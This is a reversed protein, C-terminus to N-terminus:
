TAPSSNLAEALHLVQQPGGADPNWDGHLLEAPAKGSLQPRPRAFWRRIGFDNYGASLHSVIVALHHLRAAVADPTAREGAIYRRLSISSIGALQAALDLGLAEGLTGAETEPTPSALLEAYLRDLLAALREPDSTSGLELAANRGIGHRQLHRVPALITESDLRAIPETSPLLGMAEALGLLRAARMGM